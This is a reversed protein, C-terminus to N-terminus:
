VPPSFPMTGSFAVITRVVVAGLLLVGIATVWLMLLDLARSLLVLLVIYITFGPITVWPEFIVSPIEM